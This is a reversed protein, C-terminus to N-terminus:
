VTLQKRMKKSFAKRADKSFFKYLSVREGPSGKDGQLFIFHFVFVSLYMISQLCIQFKLCHFCHILIAYCYIFIATTSEYIKM